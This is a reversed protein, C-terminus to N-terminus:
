IKLNLCIIKFSSLRALILLSSWIWINFNHTFPIGFPHFPQYSVVNQTSPILDESFKALLSRALISYKRIFISYKLDAERRATPEVLRFGASRNYFVMVSYGATLLPTGNLALSIVLGALQQSSHGLSYLNVSRLSMRM